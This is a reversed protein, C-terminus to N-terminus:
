CQIIQVDGYLISFTAVFIKEDSLFKLHINQKNNIEMFLWELLENMLKSFLEM